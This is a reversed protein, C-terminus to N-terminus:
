EADDEERGCEECIGYFVTRMPNLKFGHEESLHKGIEKLECLTLGTDEAIWQACRKTFGSFSVIGAKGTM